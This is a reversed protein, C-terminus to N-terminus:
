MIGDIILRLGVGILVIRLIWKLISGTLLQNVRAGLTGGIFAGVIFFFVYGWPVHGLAIHTISSVISIFFIMFMSTAVAIHVPFGFLLIMVPVMIAGGGIGFMGSLMGIGFSILLAPTIFVTYHYMEEGIQFTRKNRDKIATGKKGAHKSRNIFLLSSIIIMIFGFYLSFNDTDVFQNLWSGLLSGPISGLIFIIGTKYDVRGSKWYSITSSLATIAMTVLSIGVITQPSIWAFTEFYNNIILLTPILIIGGGLGILSGIFATSLSILIYIIYVM